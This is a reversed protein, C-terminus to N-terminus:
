LVSKYNRGRERYREGFFIYELKENEIHGKVTQFLAYKITDIGSSKDLLTALVGNLDANGSPPNTKKYQTEDQSVVISISNFDHDFEVIFIYYGTWSRHVYLKNDEFYTFWKDEMCTPRHGKKLKRMEKSSFIKKYEFCKCNSTMDITKWHSKKIKM